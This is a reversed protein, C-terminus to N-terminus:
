EQKRADATKKADAMKNRMNAKAKDADAKMNEVNENIM